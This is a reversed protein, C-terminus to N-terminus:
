RAREYWERHTCIGDVIADAVRTRYAAQRLRSRDGAHSLFGVEVLVAPAATWKLVAFAATKIGRSAVGLRRVMATEIHRALVRSQARRSALVAGTVPPPLRRGSALSRANERRRNIAVARGADNYRKGRHLFTDSLHFVEIGHADRNDAADAHISVFLDPQVANALDSRHALSLTIDSTRTLTVQMGKRRLSAAVQLAIDLNVTKEVVGGYNAGDHGGGHGPDIVIHKLKYRRPASPKVVPRPTVVPILTPGPLHALIDSSVKLRGDELRTPHDLMVPRDDVFVISVGPEMVVTHGHGTVTARVPSEDVVADGGLRAAVESTGVYSACGAAVPLALLLLIASSRM